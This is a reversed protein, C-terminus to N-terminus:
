SLQSDRSISSIFPSSTVAGNEIRLVPENEETDKQDIKQGSNLEQLVHIASVVLGFDKLSAMIRIYGHLREKAFRVLDAQMLTLYSSPLDLDRVHAQLLIYILKAQTPLFRAPNSRDIIKMSLLSTDRPISNSNLTQALLLYVTNISNLTVGFDPSFVPESSALEAILEICKCSLGFEYCIEKYESRIQLKSIKELSFPYYSPNASLRQYLYTRKLWDSFELSASSRMFQDVLDNEDLASEVYIADSLFRRYFRQKGEPILFLASKSVGTILDLLFVSELEKFIVLEAGLDEDRLVFSVILIKILHDKFLRLILECDSYGLAEHLIAVGFTICHKLLPDRVNLGDVLEPSPLWSKASGIAVIESATRKVERYGDCWVIASSFERLSDFISKNMSSLRHMKNVGSFAEIRVQIPNPRIGPKFAMLKTKTLANLWKHMSEMTALSSSFALLRSSKYRTMLELISTELVSIEHVRHSEEVIVISPNFDTMLLRSVDDPICVVLNGTSKELYQKASVSGTLRKLMAKLKTVTACVVLSARSKGIMIEMLVHKGSGPPACILASEEHINRLVHSQFLNLSLVGRDALSAALKPNSIDSLELCTTEKLTTYSSEERPMTVQTMDVICSTSCGLWRDSQVKLSLKSEEFPLSFSIKQEQSEQPGIILCEIATVKEDKELWVWFSQREGHWKHEWVFDLICTVNLRVFNSCLPQILLDVKIKPLYSNAQKLQAKSHVDLRRELIENGLADLADQSLFGIFQFLPNQAPWVKREFAIALGLARQMVVTWGKTRCYEFLARLLRGANQDLYHCDSILSGQEIPYRSILAQILLNVKSASSTLEDRPLVRMPARELLVEMDVLEEERVTIQRFEQSQCLLGLLQEETMKADLGSGLHEMTAVSVYYLSAIRGFATPKMKASGHPEDLTILGANRLTVATLRLLDSLVSEGVDGMEHDIRKSESRVLERLGGLYAGPNQQMRVWLFTYQLWHLADQLEGVTGLVVEALLNDALRSIFRSEIPTQCFIANLYHHLLDHTTILVGEGSSEFQPRGARGFIQLVDLISLNVTTGQDPDYVNTGKIIVAHAPLNVGWALTSTCCLVRLAGKAFLTEVLHRDGKSMGAHHFGFGRDFLERLDRNRTRNFLQKSAEAIDEDIFFSRTGDESAQKLMFRATKLTDNRSHVFVMCQHGERMYGLAREYVVKNMAEFSQKKSGKIGIFRQTLPIPRFSGDFYFMGTQHNVALFSAVDVFNPLTASLGVIRIMRQRLEVQRMTRAVLCELVAGREDHLLHVEDIILLDIAIENSSHRTIVDWKEPTTVIMNTQKLQYHTINQTDGTCELVTANFPKLRTTFKSVIESALAKMPAVYVVRWGQPRQKLCRLICLLAVDTKGAGTPACVLMNENSGFATPFVISQMKNLVRYTAYAEDLVADGCRRIDVLTIEQARQSGHESPPVCFEEWSATSSHETGLPLALKTDYRPASPNGYVNKYTAVTRARPRLNARHQMLLGVTEIAELGFIELLEETPDTSTDLLLKRVHDRLESTPLVKLQEDFWALDYKQELRKLLEDAERSLEEVSILDEIEDEEETVNGEISLIYAALSGFKKGEEKM